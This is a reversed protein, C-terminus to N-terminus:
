KVKREIIWSEIQKEDMEGSAVSLGLKILETQSYQIELSNIKLLMLMVSVGIRKNGDVFGHNSILSHTIASIKSELSPYFDEGSFSAEGRHLASEVLGYNKVGHSGGTKEIIKEHFVVVQKIDLNKM